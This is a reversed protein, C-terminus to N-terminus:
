SLVPYIFNNGCDKFSNNIIVKFYVQAEEPLSVNVVAVALHFYNTFPFKRSTVDLSSEESLYQAVSANYSFGGFLITSWYPIVLDQPLQKSKIIIHGYFQKM